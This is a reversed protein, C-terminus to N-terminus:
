TFLVFLLYKKKQFFGPIFVYYNVYFLMILLASVIIGRMEPPGFQMTEFISARPSSIFPFILFAVCAAVHIFIKRLSM